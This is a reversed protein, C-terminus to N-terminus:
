NLAACVVWEDCMSYGNAAVQMGPGTACQGTRIKKGCVPWIPLKYESSEMMFIWVSRKESVAGEQSMM